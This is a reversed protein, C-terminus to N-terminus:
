SPPFAALEAEILAAMGAPDEMPLFHTRDPRFLDRGQPFEAALGPWTPSGLPDWPKIAPDMTRARVVLVPIDLAHVLDYTSPFNRALPYVQGEHQPACCLQFGAGSDAPRLGHVCYDMLAARDFVAYPPRDAFRDFMAQPSDFQNKRQAAPHLQGLPVPPQQYADPSSMVPDVLILRRFAGPRLSAAQVLAHAGMSHGVGLAGQLGLADIQATQDQGFHRWNDFPVPDSRGHCRQEIAIVHRDAPLRRVAQDWVRGHFGTAHVLWVTPGQGRRDAHWEFHALRVGPAQTFHLQPQDGSPQTM